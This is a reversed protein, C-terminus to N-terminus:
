RLALLRREIFVHFAMAAGVCCALIVGFAIIAGSTDRLGLTVLVKCLLSILPFHLLYLAYSSDCLLKIPKSNREAPKATEANVLCVLVTAALVVFYLNPDIPWVHGVMGYAMVAVALYSALALGVYKMAHRMPPLRRSLVAAGAGFAFYLMYGDALFGSYFGCGRQSCAAANFVLALSMILGLWRSFIWACLLLYFIVEYHLTWAAVIIPAGTAGGVSPHQPVLMFTKALVWPDTPIAGRWAPVALAPLMVLLLIVWYTPYLRVFRRWLYPLAKAPHGFDKGYALMMVFGSLVFFFPVRTGAFDFVRAFADFAFYKELAITASLHHLVVGLALLARVLNLSWYM